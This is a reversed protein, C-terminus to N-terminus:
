IDQFVYGIAEQIETGCILHRQWSTQLVGVKPILFIKNVLRSTFNQKTLTKM